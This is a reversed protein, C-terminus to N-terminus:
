PVHSADDVDFVTRRARHRLLRADSPGLLKRQLLVADYSAPRARATEQPAGPNGRGCGSTWNSGPAGAGAGHAQLRLRFSAQKLNNTIALVRM